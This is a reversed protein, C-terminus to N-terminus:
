PRREYTDEAWESFRGVRDVLKQANDVHQYAGLYSFTDKLSLIGRLDKHVDNPLRNGFTERLLDVARKHDEGTAKKGGYAITLADNYAIAAHVALVGIANGYTDERDAITLLAEAGSKLARAVRLYKVSLAKDVSKSVMRRVM